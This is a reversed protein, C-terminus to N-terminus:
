GHRPQPRLRDVDDVLVDTQLIQRPLEDLYNLLYDLPPLDDQDLAALFAEMLLQYENHSFDHIGFDELPGALLADIAGALERFTRNIQYLLDPQRVLGGLCDAEWRGAKTQPRRAPRQVPGYNTQDDDSPPGDLTEYDLPPPEPMAAPHPPKAQQIRDQEAAWNLLETEGIRLRLALKQINDKKYLGNESALLIPLLRRAVAEREQVTAQASLSATEMAIVYDVIPLAAAVLKPWEDPTERILDDPDKAGPIQLIRMDMSLKGTHDARLAERAVELSRM